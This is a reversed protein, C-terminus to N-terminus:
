ISAYLIRLERVHVCVYVCPQTISQNYSDSFRVLLSQSGLRLVDELYVLGVQDTGKLTSGIQTEPRTPRDFIPCWYTYYETFTQLAPLIIRAPLSVNLKVIRNQVDVLLHCAEFHSVQHVPRPLPNTIVKKRNKAKSGSGPAGWPYELCLSLTHSAKTLGLHPKNICTIYCLVVDCHSVM